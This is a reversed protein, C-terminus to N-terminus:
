GHDGPASKRRGEELRAGLLVAIVGIVPNLWLMWTPLQAQSMGDFMSIDDPRLSAGVEVPEVFALVAFVIVLGVLIAVGQRSPALKSCAFGGATSVIAGLPISAWLWARSVEWSGPQFSGDAGLVMWLLSFLPFAVAFMVVYGAVAAGINKLVQM